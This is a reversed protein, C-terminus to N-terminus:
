SCESDILLLKNKPIPKGKKEGISNRYNCALHRFKRYNFYERGKREELEIRLKTLAWQQNLM